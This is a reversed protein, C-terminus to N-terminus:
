CCVRALRLGTHRVTDEGEGSISTTSYVTSHMTSYVSISIHGSLYSHGFSTGYHHYKPVAPAPADEILWGNPTTARPVMEVKQFLYRLRLFGVRLHAVAESRGASVSVHCRAGPQRPSCGPPVPRPCRRTGLSSSTVAQIRM